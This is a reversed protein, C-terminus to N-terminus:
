PPSQIYNHVFLFITYDFNVSAGLALNQMNSTLPILLYPYCDKLETLTFIRSNNTKLKFLIM